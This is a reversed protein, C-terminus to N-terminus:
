PYPRNETSPAISFGPGAPYIWRRTFAQPNSSSKLIQEARVSFRVDASLTEPLLNEPLDIIQDQDLVAPNVVQWGSVSAEAELTKGAQLRLPLPQDLRGAMRAFIQTVYYGTERVAVGIALHTMDPDLINRRHGESAMLKRHLDEVVFADQPVNLGAVGDCSVIEDRSNRCRMPGFRAVNEASGTVLLTRDLASLRFVHDRGQPSDHGFFQNFGMDLSHFRAAPRMEARYQLAQLGQKQRAQNIREFFDQELAARFGFANQEPAKLCARAQEVFGVLDTRREASSLPCAQILPSFGILLGLLLLFRSLSLGMRLTM